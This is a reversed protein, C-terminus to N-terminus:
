KKFRYTRKDTDSEGTGIDTARVTTKLRVAGIDAKMANRLPKNPEVSAAIVEGAAFAGTNILAPPDPGKVQLKSTVTVQCDVACVFRYIIRKKPRLKGKTLYRVLDEASTGAQPESAGAPAAFALVAAATLGAILKKGRM